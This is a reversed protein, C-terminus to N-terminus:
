KWAHYVVHPVDIGSKFNRQEFKSVVEVRSFGSAKLLRVFAPASFHFFTGGRDGWYTVVRGKLLPVLNLLFLWPKVRKGTAVSAITIIALTKTAKSLEEVAEIPNKLHEVLDGCFVLDFQRGLKHLEYVSLEQYRVKSGLLKAAMSILLVNSLDLKQALGNFQAYLAERSSYKKNFNEKHAVSHAIASTGSPKDIDVALVSKAGRREMEFSFFGDSCGVDLVEKGELVPIKYLSVFQRHDYVGKSTLGDPFEITHYWLGSALFDRIEEKSINM